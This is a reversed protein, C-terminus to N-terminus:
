FYNWDYIFFHFNFILKLQNAYCLAEVLFKLLRSTLQEM